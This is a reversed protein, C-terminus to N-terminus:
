DLEPRCGGEGALYGCAEGLSWATEAALMAPLARGYARAGNPMRRAHRFIRWVRLFPLAPTTLSALVRAGLGGDAFRQAGYCRGHRYRRAVYAGQSFPKRHIVVAGPELLPPEALAQLAFTKVFEGGTREAGIALDRRIIFNNGAAETMGAAIPRHFQVYETLYGTMRADNWAFGPEVPGYFADPEAALRALVADLWGAAPTCHLDLIAVYRANAAALGRGWLRFVSCRGPERHVRVGEPIVADLTTTEDCVLHVEVGERSLAGSLAAFMPAAECDGKAAIILALSV